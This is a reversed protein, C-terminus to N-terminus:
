HSLIWRLIGWENMLTGNTFIKLLSVNMVENTENMWEHTHTCIHSLNVYGGNNMVNDELCSGIVNMM